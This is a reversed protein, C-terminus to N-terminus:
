PQGGRGVWSVLSKEQNLVLGRSHQTAIVDWAQSLATRTGFLTGNGLYWASLRLGYLEQLEILIPQLLIAFLLPGLPDGQHVGQMCPITSFPLSYSIKWDVLGFDELNLSMKM